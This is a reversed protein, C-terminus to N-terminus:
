GAAGPARLLARQVKGSATKPLERAFDVVRPYKYPATQTKVHEQLERVLAQSPVIGDRLVMRRDPINGSKRGAELNARAIALYPPIGSLRTVVLRWEGEDGLTGDPYSQMQQMQWDIGRFPEAVYTDV